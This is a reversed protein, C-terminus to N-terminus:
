TERLNPGNLPDLTMDLPSGLHRPPPPPFYVRRLVEGLYINALQGEPLPLPSSLHFLHYYIAAVRPSALIGTRSALLGEESWSFDCLGSEGLM